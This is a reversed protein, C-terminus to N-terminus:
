QRSWNMSEVEVVAGDILVTLTGVMLSPSEESDLTLEILITVTRGDDVETREFTVITGYIDGGSVIGDPDVLSLDHGDQQVPILYSDEIYGDVVVNWVGAVNAVTDDGGGGGGCGATLLIMTGVMFVLMLKTVNSM